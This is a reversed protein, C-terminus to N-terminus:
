HNDLYQLSELAAWIRFTVSKGYRVNHAFFTEFWYGDDFPLCSLILFRKSEPLTLITYTVDKNKSM